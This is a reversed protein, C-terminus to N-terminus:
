RSTARHLSRALRKRLDNRAARVRRLGSAQRSTTALRADVAKLIRAACELNSAAVLGNETAEAVGVHNHGAAIDQFLENVWPEGSPVFHGDHAGIEPRVIGARVHDNGDHWSAFSM